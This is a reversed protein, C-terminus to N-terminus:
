ADTTDKLSYHHASNIISSRNKEVMRQWWRFTEGSVVGGPNGALTGRGRKQTPENIDSMMLFLLNGVRFAYREWTGEIPFPRKTADVHSFETHESYPRGM